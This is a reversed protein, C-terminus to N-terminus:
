NLKRHVKASSAPEEGVSLCLRYVTHGPENTWRVAFTITVVAPAQRPAGRSSYEQEESSVRADIVARKSSNRVTDTNM